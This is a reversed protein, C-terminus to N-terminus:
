MCSISKGSGHANGKGNVHSLKEGVDLVDKRWWSLDLFGDPVTM